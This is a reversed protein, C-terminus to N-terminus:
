EHIERLNNIFSCKEAKKKPSEFKNFIKAVDKM